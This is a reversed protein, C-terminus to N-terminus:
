PALPDPGDAVAIKFMVRGTQENIFWEWRHLHTNEPFKYNKVWFEMVNALSTEM